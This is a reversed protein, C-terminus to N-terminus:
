PALGLSTLAEAPTSMLVCGSLPRNKTAVWSKDGPRGLYVESEGKSKQSIPSTIRRSSGYAATRSDTNLTFWQAWQRLFVGVGMGHKSHAVTLEYKMNRMFSLYNIIFIKINSALISTNLNLIATLVTAVGSPIVVVVNLTSDQWIQLGASTKASQRM